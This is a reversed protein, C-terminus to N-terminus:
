DTQIILKGHFETFVYEKWIDISINEFDSNVDLINGSSDVVCFGMEKASPDNVSKKNYYKYFKQRKERITLATLYKRNGFDTHEIKM